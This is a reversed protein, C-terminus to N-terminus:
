FRLTSSSTSPESSLNINITGKQQNEFAEYFTPLEGNVELKKFNDEFLEAEQKNFGCCKTIISGLTKICISQNFVDKYFDSIAFAIMDIMTVGISFGLTTLRFFKEYFLETAKKLGHETTLAAESKVANVVFTITLFLPIAM